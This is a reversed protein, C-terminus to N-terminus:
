VHGDELEVDALSLCNKGLAFLENSNLSSILPFPLALDAFGPAVKGTTHYKQNIPTVLKKHYFDVDRFGVSRFLGTMAPEKLFTGDTHDPTVGIHDLVMKQATQKLYGKAQGPVSCVLEEETSPKQVSDRLDSSDHKEGNSSGDQSRCPGSMCNSQKMYGHHETRGQREHGGTDEGAGYVLGPPGNEQMDDDAITRQERRGEAQTLCPSDREMSIGSDDSEPAQFQRQHGNNESSILQNWGFLFGGPCIGSDTGVCSGKSGQPAEPELTQEPEDLTLTFCPCANELSQKESCFGSDMSRCRTKLEVFTKKITLDDLCLLTSHDWVQLQQDELWCSSHTIHSKLSEPTSAPRKIYWFIFINGFGSIILLVFVCVLPILVTSVTREEEPVSMCHEESLIGPNPWSKVEACVSICYQQGWALDTVDFQMCDVVQMFTFNDSARRVYVKHVINYTFVDQLKVTINQRTILPSKLEMHMTNRKVNLSINPAPLIVNQARFRNSNCWESTQEGSVARVRGLYVQNPELTEETLDCSLSLTRACHRAPAWSSNGYRRHEVEYLVAETSNHGPEWTLIHQYFVKAKFQVSAPPSLSEGQLCLTLLIDAALTLLVSGAM